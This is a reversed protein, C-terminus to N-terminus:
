KISRIDPELAAELGIGTVVPLLLISQDFELSHDLNVLKM